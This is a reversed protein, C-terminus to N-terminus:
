PRFQLNPSAIVEFILRWEAQSHANALAVQVEELAPKAAEIGQVHLVLRGAPHNAPGKPAASTRRVVRAHPSNGRHGWPAQDHVGGTSRADGKAPQRGLLAHAVHCHVQGAGAKEPGLRPSSALARPSRTRAPRRPPWGGRTWSPPGRRRASQGASSKQGRPQPAPPQENGEPLRADPPCCSRARGLSAGSSAPADPRPRSRAPRCPRRGTESAPDPRVSVPDTLPIRSSRMSRPLQRPRFM